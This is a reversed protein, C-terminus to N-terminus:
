QATIRAVSANHCSNCSGNTVLGPMTTLTGTPGEIEVDTGSVFGGGTFLGDVPDVTYFNGNSDTDMSAALTNTNHIYLRVTANSQATTGSQYVTGAAYFRSGTGGDDHCGSSMCDQGANHSGSQSQAGGSQSSGSDNGNGGGGGCASLLTFFSILCFYIIKQRM